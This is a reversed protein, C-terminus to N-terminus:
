TKSVIDGVAVDRSTNEAIIIFIKGETLLMDRGLYNRVVLLQRHLRGGYVALFNRNRTRTLFFRPTKYILEIGNDGRGSSRGAQRLYYADMIM